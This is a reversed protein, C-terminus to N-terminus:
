RKQMFGRKLGAAAVQVADKAKDVVAGMGFFEHAVGDYNRVTVDVSAAKLREGLM